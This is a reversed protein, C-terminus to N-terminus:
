RVAPAVEVAVGAVAQRGVWGNIGGRNNGILYRDSKIAKILHLYERGRVRVLLVDGTHLEREGLPAVTVLDGDEVKGARSHGRPCLTVPQDQRLREIAASAWGM